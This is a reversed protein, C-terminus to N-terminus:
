KQGPEIFVLVGSDPDFDVYDNKNVSNNDFLGKKVEIVYKVERSEPYTPVESDAAMDKIDVIRFKDDLFALSLDFPVNKNWFSHCGRNPFIFLACQDEDITKKMLGSRRKEDNDCLYKVKLKLKKKM